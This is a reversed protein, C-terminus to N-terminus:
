QNTLWAEMSILFREAQGTNGWAQYIILCVFAIWVKHSSYWPQQGFFLFCYSWGKLSSCSLFVSCPSPFCFNLLKNHFRKLPFYDSNLTFYRKQLYYRKPTFCRRELSEGGWKEGFGGGIQGWNGGCGQNELHKGLIVISILRFVNWLFKGLWLSEQIGIIGKLSFLVVM